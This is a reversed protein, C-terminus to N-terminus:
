RLLVMKRTMAADGARLRYFYIGSAVANGFADRSDWTTRYTGPALQRDVLTVVHQGIINLVDITVQSREPVSFEIVTSPNFPNPYNQSLDFGAPLMANDTPVVAVPSQVALTADKPSAFTFTFSALVGTTGFNVANPNITASPIESTDVYAGLDAATVGPGYLLPITSDPIFITINRSDGPPGYVTTGCKADSAGMTGGNGPVAAASDFGPLLPFIDGVWHDTQVVINLPVSGLATDSNIAFGFVSNLTDGNNTVTGFTTSSLTLVDTVPDYSVTPTVGGMVSVHHPLSGNMKVEVTVVAGAPLARSLEINAKNVPGTAAGFIAPNTNVILNTHISDFEAGLTILDAAPLSMLLAGGGFATGYLRAAGATFGMTAAPGVPDTLTDGSTAGPNIWIGAGSSDNSFIVLYFGTDVPTDVSASIVQPRAQADPAALSVLCAFALVVTLCCRM